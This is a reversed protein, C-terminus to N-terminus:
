WNQYSSLAESILIQNDWNGLMQNISTSDAFCHDVPSHSIMVVCIRKYQTHEDQGRFLLVKHMLGKSWTCLLIRQSTEYPTVCISYQYSYRITVYICKVCQACEHLQMGFVGTKAKNPLSERSPEFRAEQQWAIKAESDACFSAQNYM